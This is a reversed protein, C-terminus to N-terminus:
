TGAGDQVWHGPASSPAGLSRSGGWRCRWGALTAAAWSLDTIGGAQMLGGDEMRLTPAKVFLSGADGSGFTDSFLGSPQGQSDRGSIFIADTATVSLDGGRGPGLTRTSLQAGGSLTLRGVQVELPGANGSGLSRDTIGGAQMLGGDEMRLTPAKVFLAGADGRGFTGSFLGSPQGLDGRGSIVIEDRATVRLDGGRGEGLASTSLQAGGSLTLRGVQVELRGANGSSSTQLLGGDEMRLTSASVSLSGADGRGATNSFLGSPRGQSDRGRITIADTATVSLARGSSIQAGGTLTLQGVQVLFQSGILSANELSVSGATLQLDRGSGTGLRDATIVSRNTIVADGTVRLDVGLLGTGDKNGLNNSSISSGDVRLRGGRILVTGGGDGSTLLQGQSLAITGLRAVSDVQLDPAPGSTVPLVEGAAAVSALQIRGSPAFLTGGVIQVDGGVVSLTQGEPVQLSSGRVTIAEVQPGLFGFATPPAVSLTSTESLRAFFRAGDALRLYDATSVHFSGGVDLTAKPGFLVGSPNLLYLNAGEARLQGDTRLQGDIDSPQGGTVRSLIHKIGTQESTFNVTDGTGVSFRDFSHFLNPGNGPRKGGTIDYVTGRRSVATGLTGDPKLTTTVQAQGGALLAILLVGSGLLLVRLLYSPVKPTNHLSAM